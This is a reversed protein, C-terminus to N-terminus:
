KINTVYEILETTLNKDFFLPSKVLNTLYKYREESLGKSYTSDKLAVKLFLLQTPVFNLGSFVSTHEAMQNCNDISSQFLLKMNKEDLNSLVEDQAAIMGLVMNKVSFYGKEIDNRHEFEEICDAFSKQKTLLVEFLDKRSLLEKFGNYEYVLGEIGDQLNDVLLIDMLYPFDLCVDLLRQTSISKLINDPIQLADVREKTSEFTQWLADKQTFPIKYDEAQASISLSYFLFTLVSLLQKM